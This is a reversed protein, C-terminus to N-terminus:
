LCSHDTLCILRFLYELSNTINNYHKFANLLCIQNKADSVLWNILESVYIYLYMLFYMMHLHINEFNCNENSMTPLTYFCNINTKIAAQRAKYSWWKSVISNLPYSRKWIHLSKPKAVRFRSFPETWVVRAVLSFLYHLQKHFPNMFVNYSCLETGLGFPCHRPPIEFSIHVRTPALSSPRNDNACAM